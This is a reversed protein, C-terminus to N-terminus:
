HLKDTPFISILSNIKNIQKKGNIILYEKSYHLKVNNISHKVNTICKM